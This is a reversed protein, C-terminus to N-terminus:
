QVEVNAGRAPVHHRLEIVRREDLGPAVPVVLGVLDLPSAVVRSLTAPANGVRTGACRILDHGSMVVSDGCAHRIPREGLTVDPDRAVLGARLDVIPDNGGAWGM